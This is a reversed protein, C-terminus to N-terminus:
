KVQRKVIMYTAHEWDQRENCLKMVNAVCQFIEGELQMQEKRIRRKLMAGAGDHM